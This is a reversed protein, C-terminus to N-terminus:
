ENAAPNQVQGAEQKLTLDDTVPVTNKSLVMETDMDANALVVEIEEEIDPPPTTNVQRRCDYPICPTGNTNWIIDAEYKIKNEESFM